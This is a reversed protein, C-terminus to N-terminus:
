QSDTNIAACSFAGASRQPEAPAKKMEGIRNVNEKKRLLGM